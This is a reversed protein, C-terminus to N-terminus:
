AKKTSLHQTFNPRQLPATKNIKKGVLDTFGQLLFGKLEKINQSIILLPRLYSRSSARVGDTDNRDVVHVTQLRTALGASFWKAYHGPDM